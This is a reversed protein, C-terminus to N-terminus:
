LARGLRREFGERYKRSLVVTDGTSLRVEFEGKRSPVLERIRDLRVLASRHVRAFRDDPLRREMAAMTERMLHVEPGAHIRLYNGAAEVWDIESVDVFTIRGGAKVLLRSSHPRSSGVHDLLNALKSRVDALSGLGHRARIRDLTAAFREEDFPKLLYDLANVEFARVAYQDYATVFVIAPLTERSLTLLVDFGDIEPMQIDLFVVDPQLSEIADIARRGDECEAVIEFDAAPALVTRLFRRALPEDDVIITRIAEGPM